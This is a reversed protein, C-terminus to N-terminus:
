LPSLLKLAKPAVSIKVPLPQLYEGDAYATADAFIEIVTGQFLEVQRHKIHTGKFVRPFVKIFELKSVQNLILVDLLGDDLQANPCIKMGGGYSTSNAVAILMADRHYDTGDIIIHFPMSDFTILEQIMALNYKQRGKPWKLLNARENVRSDFGSSLIACFYQTGTSALDVRTFRLKELWDFNRLNLPIKLARVFDNGTGGPLPLLAVDSMALNQIASHVMGDGGATIVLEFKRDILDKVIETTHSVSTSIYTENPRLIDRFSEAIRNGRGSGSKPNILLASRLNKPDTNTM